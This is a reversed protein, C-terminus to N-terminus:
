TRRTPAGIAIAGYADTAGVIPPAPLAPEGIEYLLTCLAKPRSTSPGALNCTFVARRGRHHIALHCPAGDKVDFLPTSAFGDPFGTLRSAIAARQDADLVLSVRAALDTRPYREGLRLDFSGIDAGLEVAIFFAGGHPLFHGSVLLLWDPADPADRRAAAYRQQGCDDLQVTEGAIWRRYALEDAYRARPARVLRGLLSVAIGGTAVGLALSPLGVGLAAIPVVGLAFALPRAGLIARGIPGPVARTALAADTM